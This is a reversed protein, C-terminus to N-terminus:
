SKKGGFLFNYALICGGVIAGWKGAKQWKFKKLAKTLLPTEKSFAKAEKDWNKNIMKKTSKTIDKISKQNSKVQKQYEQILAGRCKNGVRRKAATEIDKPETATIGFAKPNEKVLKVIDEKSADRNLTKLLERAKTNNALSENLKSLDKSALKDIANQIEKKNKEALENIYKDLETQSFKGEKDKFVGALAKKNAENLKGTNLYKKMINTQNENLKGSEIAEIIKDTRANRYQVKMYEKNANNIFKDNIQLKGDVEKFPNAFYYAAGAAGATAIAGPIFGIGGSKQFTDAQPQNLGGNALAQQLQASYPDGYQYAGSPNYQPLQQFMIDDAYSNTTTGVFPNYGYAGVNAVM